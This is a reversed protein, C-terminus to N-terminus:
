SLDEGHIDKTKWERYFIYGKHVILLFLYLITLFNIVEPLSSIWNTAGVVALVPVTSAPATISETIQNSIM